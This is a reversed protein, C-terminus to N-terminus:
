RRAATLIGAGWQSDDAVTQGIPGIQRGDVDDESFASRREFNRADAREFEENGALVVHAVGERRDGDRAFQLDVGGDGNAAEGFEEADISAKLDEAFEASRDDDIVIRMVGGFDAGCEISRTATIRPSADHRQELRM